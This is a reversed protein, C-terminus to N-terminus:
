KPLYEAWSYYNSDVSRKSIGRVLYGEALCTVLREVRDKPYTAWQAPFPSARTQEALAAQSHPPLFGVLEPVMRRLQGTTSLMKCIDEITGIAERHRTTYECVVNAWDLVSKAETESLHRTFAGWSLAPTHRGRILIHPMAHAGARPRKVFQGSDDALQLRMGLGLEPIAFTETYSRGFMENKPIIFNADGLVAIADLISQPFGDFWVALMQEDTMPCDLFAVTHRLVGLMEDRIGGRGSTDIRRRAM